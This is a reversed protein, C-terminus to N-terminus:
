CRPESVCETARRGHELVFGHFLANVGTLRTDRRHLLCWDLMKPMGEVDLIAIRDSQLEVQIAQASVFTIGMGAMVAQKVTENGSLEIGVKVRLRQLTLLHELFQRTASGPERFIFPEDRLDSWRLGRRRTLPNDPGAVVCHPHRAFAEAEVDAESPPYGGIALDIRHDELMSLIEDRRGVTLRLTV